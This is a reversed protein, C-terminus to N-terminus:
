CQGIKKFSGWYQYDDHGGFADDDDDITMIMMVMMMMMMLLHAFNITVTVLYNTDAGLRNDFQLSIQKNALQHIRSRSMMMMMMMLMMMMMAMVMVMTTM